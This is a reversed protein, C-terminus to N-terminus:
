YDPINVLWRAMWSIPSETLIYAVFPAAITGYENAVNYVMM